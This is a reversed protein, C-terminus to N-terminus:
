TSEREGAGYSLKYNSNLAAPVRFTTYKAGNFVHGVGSQM